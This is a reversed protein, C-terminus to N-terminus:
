GAITVPDISISTTTYVQKLEIADAMDANPSILVKYQTYAPYGYDPQSFTLELGTSNNLDLLSNAVVPTNLVFQTPKQFTPNSGNDDTCATLLLVGLMLLLSTKFINKM